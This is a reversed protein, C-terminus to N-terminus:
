ARAVEALAPNLECLRDVVAEEDIGARCHRHGEAVDQGHRLLNDIPRLPQVNRAARIGGCGYHGVVIVHEVQLVDDTNQLMDVAYQLVYLCNLDIHVVVSAISRHVFVDGPLLDVIENAPVRPDSRASWPYEPIQERPSGRSFTPRDPTFRKCGADTASWFIIM